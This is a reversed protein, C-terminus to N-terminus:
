QPPPPARGPIQKLQRGPPTLPLYKRPSSARAPELMQEIGELAAAAALVAVRGWGGDLSHAPVMNEQTATGVKRGDATDMAWVIRVRQRGGEAAGVDVTGLLVFDAKERDDTLIIGATRLAIRLARGLSRNGDGPAGQVPEVLLAAGVPATPLFPEDGEGTVMAAIPKAASKGVARIIRPDGYEWQWWTGEVGQTHTGAIEGTQDFLTWHIILIYPLQANGENTETRGHLVYRSASEAIATAPVHLEKLEDAVSRALLRAMPVTPGEVPAVRIGVGDSPELLPNAPTGPASRYPQPISGCAYVVLVALVLAIKGAARSM